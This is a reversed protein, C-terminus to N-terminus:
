EARSLSRNSRHENIATFFKAPMSGRAGGCNPSGNRARESCADSRDASPSIM